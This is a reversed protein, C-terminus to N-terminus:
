LDTESTTIFRYQDVDTVPEYGLAQYIRNSTPNALDTFLFCFRRGDALARASLAAVLNSAYGRGRLQPPTYVPGVRVGHPTEGGVGALAVPEGGDQWVSMVRGARRLWRDAVAAPDDHIAAKAELSFDRWWQALLARDREEADRWSGPTPRPAVVRELKFIRQAMERAARVGAHEAWRAALEGAIAAPGIVGPLPEGCWAELLVDLARADALESMVLSHPPTRLTAAVVRGGDHVTVFQPPERYNEPHRAAVAALGLLLNHEAERAVLFESAAGLFADGNEWRRVQLM